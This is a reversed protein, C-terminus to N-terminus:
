RRKTPTCFNACDALLLWSCACSVVVALVVDGLRGLESRNAHALRTALICINILDELTSGGGAGDEGAPRGALLNPRALVQAAASANVNVPASILAAEEAPLPM